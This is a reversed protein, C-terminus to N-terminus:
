NARRVEDAQSPFRRRPRKFFESWSTDREGAAREILGNIWKELNGGSPKELEAKPITSRITITENAHMWVRYCVWLFSDPLAFILFRTRMESKESRPCEQGSKPM